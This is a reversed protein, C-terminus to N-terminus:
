LMICDGSSGICVDTPLSCALAAWQWKRVVQELALQLASMDYESEIIFSWIITPSYSLSQWPPTGLVYGKFAELLLEIKDLSMFVPLLGFFRSFVDLTATWLDAYWCWVGLQCEMCSGQLGSAPGLLSDWCGAPHEPHPLVTCSRPVVKGRLPTSSGVNTRNAPVAGPFSMYDTHLLWGWVPVGAM